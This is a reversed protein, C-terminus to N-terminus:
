LVSAAEEQDIPSPKTQGGEKGSKVKAGAVPGWIAQMLEYIEPEATMLEARNFPFFDDLGFYSETMEAFFEKHDTLGYHRVRSGDYLLTREGRGSQKFDEYAKLIRPEDFGLVQDHYAHALEHLVVWPQETINRPTPLDAAEPIHVCKALDTSYGNKELWGANPHYQMAHLRGHSLDFVITVAQLKALPEAAVVAKIDSLKYELFRLARTGLAENPPALLRDDMQVTWGEVHRLTHSAPKPREPKEGRQLPTLLTKMGKGLADGVLFYTEANGFEHHGHGPNPSDGPTRVFDHTEVFLVSGRFEPRTAAAAQAKRLTAWEGPAEVWPGTLEGIVFPLCPANLDKRVDTIFNVLNQEYQPVARQPDCGDNWGQYWVFGALEDDGDYSPFDSKLHALAARIETLMKTYYPGVTGGSSPPRFDEYLSKGGWATKILLVQNEFHDGMVHGFQLEPGFHHKGGYPTFGLTLPGAKVPGAEPQYRVWVDERVAWQGQEDKLHQFLGAKAPDRMLYQLTGKGDNYDKGELDAVAQGEMNSQGALIFVELPGKGAQKPSRAPATRRYVDFEYISWHYTANAASVDIPIKAGSFLFSSDAVSASATWSKKDLKADDEPPLPVPKPCTLPLTGLGLFRWPGPAVRFKVYDADEGHWTVGDVGGRYTGDWITTNDVKIANLTSFSGKPIGVIATTDAPSTLVLPNSSNFRIVQDAPAEVEIWPQSHCNYPMTCVLRWPENESHPLDKSVSVYEKLGYDKIAAMGQTAFLAAAAFVFASALHKMMFNPQTSNM